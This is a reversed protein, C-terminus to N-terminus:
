KVVEISDKFILNKISEHHDQIGQGKKDFWPTAKSRTSDFPKKVKFKFIKYDSEKGPMARKEFPIGEPATYRGTDEIPNYNKRKKHVYRTLIDGEQFQQKKYTGPLGDFDKTNDLYIDWGKEDKWNQAKAKNRAKEIEGRKNINKHLEKNFTRNNKGINNGSYAKKVQGKNSIKKHLEENFHINNKGINNIPTKNLKKAFKIVKAVPFASICAVAFEWGNKSNVINQLDGVPTFGLVTDSFKRAEDTIEMSSTMKEIQHSHEKYVDEEGYGMGIASPKYKNTNRSTNTALGSEYNVGGYSEFPKPRSQRHNSYYNDSFGNVKSSNNDNIVSNLKSGLNTDINVRNDINLKINSTYDKSHIIPSSNWNDGGVSPIISTSDTGFSPLTKPSVDIKIKGIQQLSNISSGLSTSPIAKIKIEKTNSSWNIKSSKHNFSYDKESIKNLYENRKDALSPTLYNKKGDDFNVNLDSLTSSQNALNDKASDLLNNEPIYRNNRVQVDESQLESM